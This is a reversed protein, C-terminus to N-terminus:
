EDGKSELWSHMMNNIFFRMHNNQEEMVKNFLYSLNKMTMEIDTMREIELGSIIDVIEKISKGCITMTNIKENVDYPIYTISGDANEKKQYLEEFIYKM